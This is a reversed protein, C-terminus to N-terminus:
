ERRMFNTRFHLFIIFDLNSLNQKIYIVKHEKAFLFFSNNSRHIRKKNKKRQYFYWDLVIIIQKLKM